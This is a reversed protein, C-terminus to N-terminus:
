RGRCLGFENHLSFTFYLVFQHKATTTYFVGKFHSLPKQYCSCAGAPFQLMPTPRGGM